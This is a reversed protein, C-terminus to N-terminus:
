QLLFRAQCVLNAPRSVGQSDQNSFSLFDCILIVSVESIFVDGGSGFVVTDEQTAIKSVRFNMKSFFGGEVFSIVHYERLM